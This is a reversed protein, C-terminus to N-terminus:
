RCRRYGLPLETVPARSSELRFVGNMMTRRTLLYGRSILLDVLRHSERGFRPGRKLEIILSKPWRNRPTAALYPELVDAERGEVDVKLCDIRDLAAEAVVDALTIVKVSISATEAPREERALCNQGSNRPNLVLAGAGRYGAVAAEVIQMREDVGNLRMNYRLQRVLTPDPEVAVVRGSGNMLSLVWFSYAGVNAGVDVFIFGPSMWQRLLEREHRDWSRPLFLIRAESISRDPFLRLRHGWIRTDVPGALTWRAFRRAAFAFRNWFWGEPFSRSVNLWFGGWGRPRHTGWPSEDTFCDRTM